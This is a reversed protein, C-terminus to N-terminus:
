GIESRPTSTRRSGAVPANRWLTPGSSWPTGRTATDNWAPFNERRGPHTWLAHIRTARLDTLDYARSTAVGHFHGRKSEIFIDGVAPRRLRRQGAFPSM